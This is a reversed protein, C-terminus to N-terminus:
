KKVRGKTIVKGQIIKYAPKAYVDTPRAFQTGCEPCKLDGNTYDKQIRHVYCKVLQGPGGKYYQYLKTGCGACLIKIVHAKPNKSM